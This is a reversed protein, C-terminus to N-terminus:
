IKDYNLKYRAIIRALQRLKRSKHSHMYRLMCGIDYKAKKGKLGLAICYMNIRCEMKQLRFPMSSLFPKRLEVENTEDDQFKLQNASIEKGDVFIKVNKGFQIATGM